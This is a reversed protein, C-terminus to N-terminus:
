VIFFGTIQTRPKPSFSKPRDMDMTPVRDAFLLNLWRQQEGVTIMIPATSVRIAPSSDRQAFNIALIAMWVAALGAWTRRSPLFIERWLTLWISTTATQSRRKSEAEDRRDCLAAVITQRLADLKPEAARHHTFLIERPTKM